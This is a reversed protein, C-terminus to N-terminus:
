VQKRWRNSAAIWIEPFYAGIIILILGTVSGQNHVSGPQMFPFRFLETIATIYWGAIIMLLGILHAFFYRKFKEM